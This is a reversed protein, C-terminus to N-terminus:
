FYQELGVIADKLGQIAAEDTPKFLVGYFGAQYKNFQEMKLKYQAKEVPDAPYLPLGAEGGLDEALEMIIRSEFLQKGDPFELIPVFGGNLDVHWQAKKTFDVQCDQYTIKKALLALRAREV